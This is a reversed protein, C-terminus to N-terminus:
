KKKEKENKFLDLAQMGAARLEDRDRQNSLEREAKVERREDDNKAASMRGDWFGNLYISKERKGTSNGRQSLVEAPSQILEKALTELQSDVPVLLHNFDGSRGSWEMVSRPLSLKHERPEGVAVRGAAAARRAADLIKGPEELIDLNNRFLVSPVLEWGEEQPVPPGLRVVTWGLGYPIFPFRAQVDKEEPKYRANNLLFVLLERGAGKWGEYRKDSSLTSEAFRLTEPPRGKLKEHVKLTVILWARDDPHLEVSVDGVSARVVVASRAVLWELSPEQHGVQALVMAAFTVLPM